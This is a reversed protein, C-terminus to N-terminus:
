RSATAARLLSLLDQGLMGGAGTVLWRTVARTRSADGRYRSSGARRPRASRATAGEAAGVLLPQRPVLQVTSRLGDAFPSARARLGHGSARSDDLSYRRDHGKRDEVHTVMDWDAGCADLM